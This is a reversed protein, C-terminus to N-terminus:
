IHILSLFKKTRAGVPCSIVRNCGFKRFHNIEDFEVVMGFKIYIPDSDPMVGSVGRLGVPCDYLKIGGFVIPSEVAIKDVPQGFILRM